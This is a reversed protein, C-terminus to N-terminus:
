GVSEYSRNAAIPLGHLGSHATASIAPVAQIGYPRLGAVCPSLGKCQNGLKQSAMTKSSSAFQM